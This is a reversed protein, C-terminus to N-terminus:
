LGLRKRQNVTNVIHLYYDELDREGSQVKNIIDQRKTLTHNEIFDIMEEDTIGEPKTLKPLCNHENDKVYIGDIYLGTEGVIQEFKPTMIDEYWEEITHVAFSKRVNFFDQIENILKESVFIYGKSFKGNEFDYMATIVEKGRVCWEERLDGNNWSKPTIRRDGESIYDSLYKGIMSRISQSSKAYRKYQEETVIYKVGRKSESVDINKKHDKSMSSTSMTTLTIGTVQKFLTVIDATIKQRDFRDLPEFGENMYYTFGVFYHDTGGAKEVYTVGVKEVNHKDKVEHAVKKILKRLINLDM